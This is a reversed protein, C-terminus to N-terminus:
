FCEPRFRKIGSGDVVYPTTCDVKARPRKAHSAPARIPASKPASEPAASSSSPPLPPPPARSGVDSPSSSSEGPTVASRPAMARMPIPTASNPVAIPEPDSGIATVTAPEAAWRSRLTSVILASAAGLAIMGPLLFWRWTRAPAAERRGTSGLVFGGRPTARNDSSAREFPPPRSPAGFGRTSPLEAVGPATLESATFGEVDSIWLARKRLAEGAFREVWSAIELAGAPACASQLALAMQRADAFRDSPDLALAREVVADLEPSIGSTFASPAALSLERRTSEDAPFLRQGTLLEWLVVGAAFVDARRDLPRGLELQEPAVYGLKGKFKGGDTAHARLAAKAVGFDVVRVAGDQDVLINQPSVDRHVIGLPKGHEDSAEHAAHLGLLAQVMTASAVAASPRGEGTAHLLRSLPEGHVYDMVILVEPEAVVVDLPALVNAHRIRSALRAEDLFMAVFEPDLAFQPHLRKIAVTRSFGEPGILRGLHVTAM